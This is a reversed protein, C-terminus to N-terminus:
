LRGEFSILPNGTLLGGDIVFGPLLVIGAPGKVCAIVADSGSPSVSWYEAVPRGEPTVILLEVPTILPLAAAPDYLM